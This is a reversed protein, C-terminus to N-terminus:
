VIKTSKRVWGFEGSAFPAHAMFGTGASGLGTANDVAIAVPVAMTAAGALAASAKIYMWVSGDSAAYWTMLKHVGKHTVDGAAVAPARITPSFGVVRAYNTIENAPVSPAASDYLAM